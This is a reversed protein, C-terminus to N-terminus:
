VGENKFFKIEQEMVEWKELLQELEAETSKKEQELAKVEQMSKKEYLKHDSFITDIESLRAEKLQIESTFTQSEKEMKALKKKREKNGMYSAQNSSGNKPSAVAANSSKKENSAANLAGAKKGSLRLLYDNGYNEIYEQYSGSYVNLGEPTLEYIKEAVNSVFNKDHSVILVTGKYEALGQELATISELDLHNTPEDLLIVNPKEAIMRALVLRASEGGSLNSIKKDAEEQTILMRGLIGRIHSIGMGPCFQSLWEFSSMDGSLNEHHDQAFWFPKAEFGWKVSGQDPQIVNMLIKILTSKGVGNPGILAVKEGRELSFSVNNLILTDKGTIPSIFSKHIGSVSLAERGSERVMAIDIDPYRRSSQVLDPIDIKEIQKARSQAQRAKSAKAKFRDVFAQLQDVKKELSQNEKMRQEMALIKADMFQDYNGTYIKVTQYDVDVIHTSVRNIFHRDHSIVVILGRFTNVLYNELWSISLIDLHNTPEDLLLIDPNQFLVRALLVRLKQGGSLHKLPQFHYDSHIGLGELLRSAQSEASYGDHVIILEELDGLKKGIADNSFDSNSELIKEKEQMADYLESNGSIVVDVVRHNEYLFQDQKLHGISIDRPKAVNGSYGKEEGTLIKLFTSKGSGNAGVLGYRKGPDFQLTVNEFLVNFGFHMSLNEVSIM